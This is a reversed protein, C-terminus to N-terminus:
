AVPGEAGCRNCVAPSPGFGKQVYQGNAGCVPCSKGAVVEIAPLSDVSVPNGSADVIGTDATPESM